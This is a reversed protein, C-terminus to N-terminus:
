LRFRKERKEKRRGELQFDKDKMQLSGFPNILLIEKKSSMCSYRTTVIVFEQCTKIIVSVDSHKYNIIWMKLLMCM